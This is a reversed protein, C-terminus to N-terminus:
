LNFNYMCTCTATINQFIRLSQYYNTLLVHMVTTRQMQEVCLYLKTYVFFGAGIGIIM